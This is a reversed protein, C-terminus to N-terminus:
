NLTSSFSIFVSLFVYFLYFYQVHQARFANLRVIFQSIYKKSFFNVFTMHALEWISSIELCM